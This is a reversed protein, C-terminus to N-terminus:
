NSKPGGNEQNIFPQIGKDILYQGLRFACMQDKLHTDLLVSYELPARKPPTKLLSIKELLDRTISTEPGQIFDYTDKKREETKLNYLFNKHAEDEIKDIKLQEPVWIIQPTEQEKALEVQKQPYTIEPEGDIKRGPLHDLLHVSLLSNKLHTIM